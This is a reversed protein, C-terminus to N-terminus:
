TLAESKANSEGEEIDRADLPPRVRLGVLVEGDDMLRLRRDRAMALAKGWLPDKILESLQLFCGRRIQTIALMATLTHWSALLAEHAAELREADDIFGRVANRAALRDAYNM